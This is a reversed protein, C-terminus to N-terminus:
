QQKMLHLDLDQNLVKKRVLRCHSEKENCVRKMRNQLSSAQEQMCVAGIRTRHSPYRRDQRHEPSKTVFPERHRLPIFDNCTYPSAKGVDQLEKWHLTNVGAHRRPAAHSLAQCDSVSPQEHQLGKFATIHYSSIKPMNGNLLHNSWNAASRIDNLSSLTNTMLSQAAKRDDPGGCSSTILGRWLLLM